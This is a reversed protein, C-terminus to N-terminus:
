IPSVYGIGLSKAFSCCCYRYRMVAAIGLSAPLCCGYQYCMVFVSVPQSLYFCVILLLLLM